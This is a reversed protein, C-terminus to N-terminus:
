EETPALEAIKSDLIDKLQLLTQDLETTQAVYQGAGAYFAEPPPTLIMLIAFVFACIAGIVPHRVRCEEDLWLFMGVGGYVTAIVTIAVFLGKISGVISVLYFFWFAENIM